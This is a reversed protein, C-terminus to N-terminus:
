ADISSHDAKTVPKRDDPTFTIALQRAQALLTGDAAYVLVDEDVLGELSAVTQVDVLIPQPDLGEAPITTRLHFTIDVTPNFALVDIPGLAAPWWADSFFALAAADVRQDGHLQLWGGTRAPEGPELPTGSLPPPGIRPAYTVRDALAPMRPDDLAPISPDDAAPVDPALPSWRAIERLGGTMATALGELILRDGQVMRVRANTARGGTRVLEVQVEAETAKPPRLFQVQLTRLGRDPGVEAEVARVLIAMLVGGNIGAVASWGADLHCVYRGDGLARVATALAFNSAPDPAAATAPNAAPDGPSPM